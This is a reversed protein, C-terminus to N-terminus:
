YIDAVLERNLSACVFGYFQWRARMDIERSIIDSKTVSVSAEERETIRELTVTREHEGNGNRESADTEVAGGDFGNTTDQTRETDTDTGKEERTETVKGKSGGNYLPNYEAELAEKERKWSDYYRALISSLYADTKGKKVSLELSVCIPLDANHSIYYTDFDAIDQETPFLSNVKEANLHLMESIVGNPFVEEIKMRKM